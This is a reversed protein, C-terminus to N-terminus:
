KEPKTTNKPQISSRFGASEHQACMNSPHGHLGCRSCRDFLCSPVHKKVLSKKDQCIRCINITATYPTPHRSADAYVYNKDRFVQIDIDRRSSDVIVLNQHASFAVETSLAQVHNTTTISKSNHASFMNPQSQQKMGTQASSSEHTLSSHALTKRQVFEILRKRLPGLEGIPTDPVIGNLDNELYLLIDQIADARISQHVCKEITLVVCFGEPKMFLKWLNMTSWMSFQENISNIAFLTNIGTLSFKMNMMNSMHQSFTILTCSVFQKKLNHYVAIMNRNTVPSMVDRNTNPITISTNLQQTVEPNMPPADLINFLLYALKSCCSQAHNMVAHFAQTSESYMEYKQLLSPYEDYISCQQAFLRDIKAIKNVQLSNLDTVYQVYDADKAVEQQAYSQVANVHYSDNMNAAPYHQSYITWAQQYFADFRDRVCNEAVIIKQEVDSCCAERSPRSPKITKRPHLMGMVSSLTSAALNIPYDSEIM